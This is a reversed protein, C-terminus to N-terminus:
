HEGIPTINCYTIWYQAECVQCRNRVRHFRLRARIRSECRSYCIQRQVAAKSQPLQQEYRSSTARRPESLYQHLVVKWYIYLATTCSTMVPTLVPLANLSALPAKQRTM